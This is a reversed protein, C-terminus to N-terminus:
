FPGSHQLGNTGTQEEAQTPIPEDPLLLFETDKRAPGTSSPVLFTMM